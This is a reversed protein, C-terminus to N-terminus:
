FRKYDIGHSILAQQDQGFDLLLQETNAKERRSAYRHYEAAFRLLKAGSWGLATVYQFVM